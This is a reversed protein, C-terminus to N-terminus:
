SKDLEELSKKIVEAPIFFYVQNSYLGMGVYAGSLNFMSEGKIFDKPVVDVEITKFNLSDTTTASSKNFSSIRAFAIVNTNEGGVIVVSQGLKLPQLDNFSVASFTVDKIDLKPQFFVFRNDSTTTALSIPILTSDELQASYLVGDEFLNAPSAILGDKRVVVGLGYFSSEMDLSHTGMIRVIKSTNKEVADIILDEEKIVVTEKITVQNVNTQNEVPVVREITKEVVRNITQTVATPTDNLLSFTIVGTGISTVFSLLLCLLIIQHKSIEEM